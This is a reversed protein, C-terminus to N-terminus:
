IIKFCCYYCVDPSALPLSFKLYVMSGFPITAETESIYHPPRSSHSLPYYIFDSVSFWSFFASAVQRFNNRGFSYTAPARRCLVFAGVFAVARDYIEAGAIVHGVDCRKIPAGTDGGGRARLASSSGKTSRRAVVKGRQKSKYAFIKKNDKETKK